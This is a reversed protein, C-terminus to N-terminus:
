VIWPYVPPPLGMNELGFATDEEVVAAVLQDEPNQFVMGVAAQVQQHTQPNRTDLGGVRVTGSTPLHLGNFHRALTTKGSGNAGILAVVEGDAVELSLDKLAHAKGYRVSVNKIELLM